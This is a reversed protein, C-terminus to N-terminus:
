IIQNFSNDIAQIFNQIQKIILIRKNDKINTKMGPFFKNFVFSVIKTHIEGKLEREEEDIIEILKEKSRPTSFTNALHEYNKLFKKNNEDPKIHEIQKM